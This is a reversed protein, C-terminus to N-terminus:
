GALLPFGRYDSRPVAAPRRQRPSSADRPIQIHHQTQRLFGHRVVDVVHGCVGTSSTM